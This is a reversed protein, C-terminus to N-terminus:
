KKFTKWHQRGTYAVGDNFRQKKPSDKKNEHGSKEGWLNSFGYNEDSDGLKYYNSDDSSTDRKTELAWTAPMSAWDVIKGFTGREFPRKETFKRKLNTVM